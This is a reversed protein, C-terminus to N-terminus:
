SIYTIQSPWMQDAKRATSPHRGYTPTLSCRSWMWKENSQGPAIPSVLKQRPPEARAAPLASGSRGSTGTAGFGAGSGNPNGGPTTRGGIGSAGPRTPGDDDGDPPSGGGGDSDGVVV